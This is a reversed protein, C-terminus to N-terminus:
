VYSQVCASRDFYFKVLSAGVLYMTNNSPVAAISVNYTQSPGTGTTTVTAVATIGGALLAAEVSAKVTAAPTTGPTIDGISRAVGNLNLTSGAGATFLLASFTCLNSVTCDADFTSTGASATLSKVVIDGTIDIKLTAGLDTVTVGPWDQNEDDYYEVAVLAALIASQVTAATANAGITLPLVIDVGDETITIASVTNAQTYTASYQCDLANGDCCGLEHKTTKLFNNANQGSVANKKLM